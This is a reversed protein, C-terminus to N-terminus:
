QKCYYRFDCNECTNPNGSRSSFKKRQIRHVTDDFENMTKTIDNQNYPFSVTPMGDNEGTYYITLRSVKQGTRAEVLYAYIQLQKKHREFSNTGRNVDPKKESKFDVIEITGDGARILDIKGGLIYDAKVLSVDVEAEQIRDWKKSQRTAYALVQNYAANIQAAGLYSHEAKSVAAYNIDLWNHINDPTILNEERRLVARHIDEITEHVITGFITAGVRAPIFGLEKYFKYQLACEEYVAIHSTFSYTDKINVDKVENFDYKCTNIRDSSYEYLQNVMERFFLSPERSTHNSTLVLLNQARSFATYYLRWFDYYKIFEIPEYPPRHYYTQSIEAILKDDRSQPVAGLSGVVVIPFEMGKSQHITLFSVCGSPAYESDDEYEAIGGRILLKLYMNFFREVTDKIKDPTFVDIHHLYEYKAVISTMLSINRAPRLDIVGSNMDAALISAFPEYAFMRYVIGLFAYDTNSEMFSHSDALNGLMESLPEGEETELYNEVLQLCDEYYQCLSEDVFRFNRDQLDYCFEQFCTLLCGILLRVEKREFFMDSRPSYVKIGHDELYRALSVVKDNKVSKFLFAIQNLDAIKGSSKLLHIFELNKANWQDLDNESTIRIVSPNHVTTVSFPKIKKNYRFKDWEFGKKGFVTNTMWRNYFDVIDSNSRYNTVLQIVDCEGKEFRSPFELINRITAGRFRYLGQDDDGVVCINKKEGALLFVIQEQIYNTDQYEDIMLYNIKERVSALVIEHSSLLWYAEAQIGSFDLYNNEDLIRLYLKIINGIVVHKVNGSKLLLDADVLEEILNNVITCIVIARNWDSGETIVSTFNPINKFQWMNRFVIYKQDFDDLTKFNKKIHTYEINEKIIRLCISHFTGIYMENINVPINNEALKNSIRTILEKAAKDTFTAMLIQEPQIGKELILYLARQVLTFTKGTGPGAIILVPGDTAEIARKQAINAGSYNFVSM